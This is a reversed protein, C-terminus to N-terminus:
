RRKRAPLKLEEAPTGALLAKAQGIWDEREIRGPFALYSGVWRAEDDTWAAIQRFHYIGLGNLRQENQPGIGKLLKLNDVAEGDQLEAKPPRRGPYAADGKGEGAANSQPSTAEPESDPAAGKGEGGFPAPGGFPLEAQPVTTPTEGEEGPTAEAEGAGPLAEGASPMHSPDAQPGAAAEPTEPVDGREDAARATAVPASPVAGNGLVSQGSTAGSASYAKLVAKRRWRRLMLGLLFGIVFVIALLLLAQFTFASM